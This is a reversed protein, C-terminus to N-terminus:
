TNSLILCSCMVHPNTCAFSSPIKGSMQVLCLSKNIFEPENGPLHNTLEVVAALGSRQLCTLSLGNFPFYYILNM